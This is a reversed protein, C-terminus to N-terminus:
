SFEINSKFPPVMSKNHIISNIQVTPAHLKKERDAKWSSSLGLQNMGYKILSPKPEPNNIDWDSMRKDIQEQIDEKSM